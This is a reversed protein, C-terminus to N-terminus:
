TTTMLTIINYPWGQMPPRVWTWRIRTGTTGQMCIDGNPMEFVPMRQHTLEAFQEAAMDKAVEKVDDSARDTGYRTIHDRVEQETYKLMIDYTGGVSGNYVVAFDKDEILLDDGRNQLPSAYTHQEDMGNGDYYEKALALLGKYDGKDKLEDLQKTDDATQLYAM